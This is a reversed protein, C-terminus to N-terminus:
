RKGESEKPYKKMLKYVEKWIRRSVERMAEASFDDKTFEVYELPESWEPERIDIMYQHVAERMAPNDREIWIQIIYGNWEKEYHSCTDNGWSADKFGPPLKPITTGAFPM